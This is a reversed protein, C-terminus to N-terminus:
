LIVKAHAYGPPPGIPDPGGGEFIKKYPFNKEWFYKKSKFFNRVSKPFEVKKTLWEHVM